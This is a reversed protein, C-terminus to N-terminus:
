SGRNTLPEDFIEESYRLAYIRFYLSRSEDRPSRIGRHGRRRRPRTTTKTIQRYNRSGGPSVEAVKRKTVRERNFWWIGFCEKPNLRAAVNPEVLPEIEEYSHPKYVDELIFTRISRTNWHKNGAPTAVGGAELTRKVSHLARGEVGVMYFIRRIIWMTGEDMM